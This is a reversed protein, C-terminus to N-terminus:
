FKRSPRFCVISVIQFTVQCRHCWPSFYSQYLDINLKM